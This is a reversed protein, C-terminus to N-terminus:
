PLERIRINRYAVWDGHDQLGIHGRSARGYGPWDVFKSNAIRAEWDRSWLEYEVVMEGNLWHEVRAGDVVIRVANWEGAPRVVGGPAAYLGFNAGASTLPNTGNAHQADDLVQMEPATEYIHDTEETARFFIGSNGGPSINWELELEFNAFQDETIIDGGSGVRSLAGDVAQWGDPMGAMRYGRWGATSEGDFLARWTTDPVAAEAEPQAAVRDNGPGCAVAALIGILPIPHHPFRKM